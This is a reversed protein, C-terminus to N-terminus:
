SVELKEMKPFGKQFQTIKHKGRTNKSSRPPNRLRSVKFCHPYKHAYLGPDEYKIQISPNSDPKPPNTTESESLALLKM